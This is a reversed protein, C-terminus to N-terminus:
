STHHTHFDNVTEILQQDWASRKEVFVLPESCGEVPMITVLRNIPVGTREEYAIAYFAEQLFYKSIDERKKVRSSTKFDIIALKGDYEAVVDVRGAVRFFDAYLPFEQLHINDVHADLVKKCQWFMSQQLPMSAPVTDGRLYAETMGHLKEGGGAALRSVRNAAAEGVRARWEALYESGRFGLITTISPYLGKPCHYYRGKDTTDAVIDSYGLDTPIKQFKKRSGNSTSKKIM